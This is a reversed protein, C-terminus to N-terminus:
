TLMLFPNHGNSVNKKVLISQNSNNIQTNDVVNNMIPPINVMQRKNQMDELTAVRREMNTSDSVTKEMRNLYSMLMINDNKQNAQTYIKSVKESFNLMRDELDSMALTLEPNQRVGKYDGVLLNQPGYSINGYRASPPPKRIMDANDKNRRVSSNRISSEEAAKIYNEERLYDFMKKYRSLGTATGETQRGMGLQYAMSILVAKRTNNDLLAYIDSMRYGEATLSNSSIISKEFSEIRERLGEKAAEESMIFDKHVYGEATPSGQKKEKTYFNNKDKMGKHVHVYNKKDTQKDYESETLVIIKKGDIDNFGYGVAFKDGDPYPYKRYSEAEEIIGFAIDRAAPSPSAKIKPAIPNLTINPAAQRLSLAEAMDNVSTTKESFKDPLVLGRFPTNPYSDSNLLDVKPPNSGSDSNTYSKEVSEVGRQKSEINSTLDQGIQESSVRPSFDLTGSMAANAKFEKEFNATIEAKERSRKKTSNEYPEFIKNMFGKLDEMISEFRGVFWNGTDDAAKTLDKRGIAAAAFGLAGGAILGGLAGLPGGLSGKLAGIKAGAIAGPIGLTLSNLLNDTTSGDGTGAIFGALFKSVTSGDYNEGSAAIGQMISTFVATLGGGIKLFRALRGSNGFIGSKNTKDVVDSSEGVGKKFLGINDGLKKVVGKNTKNSKEIIASDKKADKKFADLGNFLKGVNSGKKNSKEITKSDKKNRDSFQSYNDILGKLGGAKQLDRLKKLGVLGGVIPLVTSLIDKLAALPAKAFDLIKTFFSKTEKEVGADSRKGTLAELIGQLLENTKESREIRERKDELQDQTLERRSNNMGFNNSRLGRFANVANMTNMGFRVMSNNQFRQITKDRLDGVTDRMIRSASLNMISQSNTTRSSGIAGGSDSNSSVSTSLKDIADTTSESQKTEEKSKEETTDVLNKVNEVLNTINKNINSLEPIDLEVVENSNLIPLKVM